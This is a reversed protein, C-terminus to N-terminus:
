IAETSQTLNVGDTNSELNTQSNGFLKEYNIRYWKTKDFPNKNFNASILYGEKELKRITRKITRVSWFPFQKHLDEYSSYTWYYGNEFNINRKQNQMVWYHIQQIIIAENLGIKTALVRDVLVPYEDFLTITQGFEKM